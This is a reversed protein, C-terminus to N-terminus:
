FCLRFLICHQTIGVYWLIKDCVWAVNEEIIGVHLIGCPM